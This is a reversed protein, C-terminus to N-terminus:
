RRKSELEYVQEHTCRHIEMRTSKLSETYVSCVFYIVMNNLSSDDLNRKVTQRNADKKVVRELHHHHKPRKTEKEEGSSVTHQQQRTHRYLSTGRDKEFCRHLLLLPSLQLLWSLSYFPFLIFQFFVSLPGNGQLFNHIPMKKRPSTSYYHLTLVYWWSERVRYGDRVVAAYTIAIIGFLTLIHVCSTFYLSVLHTVYARNYPAMGCDDDDDFDDHDDNRKGELIVKLVVLLTMDHLALSSRWSNTSFSVVLLEVM